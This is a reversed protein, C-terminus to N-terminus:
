LLEFGLEKRWDMNSYVEEQIYPQYHASDNIALLVDVLGDGYFYFEDEQVMKLLSATTGSLM